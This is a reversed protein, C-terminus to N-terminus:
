CVGFTSIGTAGATEILLGVVGIAVLGSRLGSMSHATVVSCVGFRCLRVCVLYALEM